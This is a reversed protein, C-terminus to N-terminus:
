VWGSIPWGSVGIWRENRRALFFCVFAIFRKKM